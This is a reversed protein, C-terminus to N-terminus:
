GPDLGLQSRLKRGIEELQPAFRAELESRKHQWSENQQPNSRIASGSVGLRGLAGSGAEEAASLECRKQAEYEGLIANWLGPMGGLDGGGSLARIAEFARTTAAARELDPARCLRELCAKRVFEGEEAEYGSLETELRSAALEGRLVAEAIAEGRPACQEERRQRIEEESLRPLKAAKEMALEITSKIRGSM